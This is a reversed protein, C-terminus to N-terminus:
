FFTSSFFLKTYIYISITYISVIYEPQSNGENSYSESKESVSSLTEGTVTDNYSSPAYMEITATKAPQNTTEAVTNRHRYFPRFFFTSALYACLYQFPTIPLSMGFISSECRHWTPQRPKQPHHLAATRCHSSPTTTGPLAFWICIALITLTGSLLLRITNSPTIRHHPLWPTAYGLTLPMANIIWMQRLMRQHANRHRGPRHCLIPTLLLYLHTSLGIFTFIWNFSKHCMKGNFNVHQLCSDM